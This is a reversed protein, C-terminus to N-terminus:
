LHSSITELARDTSVEYGYTKPMSALSTTGFCIRSVKLKTRGLTTKALQGAM